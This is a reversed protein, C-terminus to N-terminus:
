QKTLVVPTTSYLVALLHSMLAPPAAIQVAGLREAIRLLEGEDPPGSSSAAVAAEGRALRDVAEFFSVMVEPMEKKFRRPGADLVVHQVEV